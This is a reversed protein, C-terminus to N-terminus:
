TENNSTEVIRTNVTSNIVAADNLVNQNNLISSNMANAFLENAAIVPNLMDITNGTNNSGISSIINSESSLNNSLMSQALIDKSSSSNSNLDDAINGINSIIELMNEFYYMLLQYDSYTLVNDINSAKYFSDYVDKNTEYAQEAASTYSSTYAEYAYNDSSVSSDKTKNDQNVTVSTDPVTVGGNNLMATVTSVFEQTEGFPPVGGYKAVSGIGAGYAALMLTQNGDYMDSLSSLLKAAGMVNQYPDYGDTVGMAAATEPMLQMLGMAGAYSTVGPQFRSEHWAITTLLDYSVGYKESAEQFISKLDYTKTTNQANYKETESALMADFTSNGTGSTSTNQNNSPNVNSIPATDNVFGLGNVYM